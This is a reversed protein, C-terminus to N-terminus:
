LLPACADPEVLAGAHDALVVVAHLLGEEVQPPCQAAADEMERASQAALLVGGCASLAALCRTAEALERGRAESLQRERWAQGDAAHSHTIGRLRAFFASPPAQENAGTLADELAEAVANSLQLGPLAAGLLAQLRPYTPFPKNM